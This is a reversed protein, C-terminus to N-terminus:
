LLGHVVSSLGALGAVVLVATRTHGGDLWRSTWRSLVFGVAIGPLLGLALKAEQTGLRGVTVLAVISMMAGILFYTALTSRVLAGREHQYLVAVAPGGLAATTGMLGSVVGAAVLLPPKRALRVTRLSIGVALLVLVGLVITLARDGLGKLAFAGLVTGPVRGALVWGLGRADVASRERWATLALLLTVAVIIPGPVLRTDVWALIPSSLLAFGFGASGQLAAGTMVIASALAWQAFSAFGLM